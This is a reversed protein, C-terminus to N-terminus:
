VANVVESFEVGSAVAVFNLSIFNISRSPKIFIDGRFENRDVVAPPNNSGDCIVKFDIIGRRSRVDRLFPEITSVFQARTFDDNFEFLSFQAANAIAKELIIFLRRVNIRDFASPKALLTKDGFLVTGQGPFSVVPNVGKVYLDDRETQTPNFALKTVNKVNGRNFGAPSIYPNINDSAACLGAIDGNLPVYRFVGNFRDLMYKYNGDMVAYSSSPLQNRRDVIATVEGGDNNVVDSSAPSIFAVCDKRNEAVEQILFTSLTDSAEGSLVFSIDTKNPDSLKKWGIIRDADSVNFGNNGGSFSQTVIGNAQASASFTGRFSNNSASNGTALTGGWEINIERSSGGTGTRSVQDGEGAHDGWRIYESHDNIYDKYFISEGTSSIAGNAVSVAPFTELVSKSIVRPAGRVDKTGTWDGNEDVLIVHVEDNVNKSGTTKFAYDSTLPEKEFDSRFEWERSYTKDSFALLYPQDVTLTTDNTIATVKRRVNGTGDNVTIIDGVHLQKTFHSNTGSVTSPASLAVTLVGMMHSSPEEFASRKKRVLTITTTGQTDLLSGANTTATFESSNAIATVIGVNSGNTIIDGIELEQEANGHAATTSTCVGAAAITFTGNLTVDTNPALSVINDQVQTNARTAMCISTKFTNGIDGAHKAIWTRGETGTGSLAATNQYEHDNRILVSTGNAVANRANTTNATRVIRLTNAYTLFNAGTFWDQFNDGVPKGFREVMDDESSVTVVEFLPGWKFISCLAGQSLSPIPTRTTLDIEATSVGPSVQFAM